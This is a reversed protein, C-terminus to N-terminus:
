PYLPPYKKNWNEIKEQLETLTLSCKKYKSINDNHRMLKCNAPHSILKPDVNQLFGEKISFMHDRSIGNLNDGRNKAKYWGYQEVLSFDFENPYENLSFNFQCALRYRQYNTYDKILYEHRCEKCCYKRIKGEIKKNCNICFSYTDEKLNIKRNKNNVFGVIEGRRIKDKVIKSFNKKSEETRIHTNACIRSCYYKEKKPKDTNCEKIIIEKNCKCCNVNFSNWKNEFHEKSKKRTEDNKFLYGKHEWRHHNAKAQFTEFELNCEGCKYM